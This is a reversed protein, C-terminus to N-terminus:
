RPRSKGKLYAEKCTWLSFFGAVRAQPGLNALEAAEEETFQRAILEHDRDPRLREIDLGLTRGQALAVAGLAQSSSASFGLARAAEPAALCPKGHAGNAFRVEGPPTGAHSALILRLMGRRVIFRRRHEAFRFREARRREEDDLLALLQVVTRAGADLPFHLVRV